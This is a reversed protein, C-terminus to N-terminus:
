GTSYGRVAFSRNAIKTDESGWIQGKSVDSADFARIAGRVVGQNANDSFPMTAWVIGTSTDTGKASLTLFGGPMWITTRTPDNLLNPPPLGPTEKSRRFPTDSDFKWGAAPDPLLRYQKLFDEEGMLYVFMMGNRPWLVPAGHINWYLRDGAIQPNNVRNRPANTVQLSHLSIKTGRGMDNRDILYLRGEKGGALLLHSNPVPVAGSSGLDADFIKLENQNQPTFFDQVQIKGATTQIKVISNALELSAPNATNFTGDGTSFFVSGDVAAPGYGSMWIGGRGNKDNINQTRPTFTTSFVDLKRPATPDSVDYAFVWGRYDGTDCHGGFAIYLTTGDLLLAPRNLHLLADFTITGNPSNVSGEINVAAGMPTGDALNLAFLQYVFQAGAKSKAALFIVGPKPPAASTLQIVPTGTIGIETTLDLCNGAGIKQSLEPSDVANGLTAPGTHWLAKASEGSPPDPSTDKSDFAYVSNHETAVIAVDVPAPRNAIRAGTVILPQAYINGDVIRFALKGFSKPKVNAKNLTSENLNAGSRQNDYRYTLVDVQALIAPVTMAHVPLPLAAVLVRTSKPM